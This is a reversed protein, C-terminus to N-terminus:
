SPRAGPPCSRPWCASRGIAVILVSSSATLAGRVGHGPRGPGPSFSWGFLVGVVIGLVGGIIATIVSEYRIVRRLQRRTMGVARLMGIERTREFVSLALTNVIGILAIIVCMALLIYLLSLIGNVSERRRGQVRRKDAGQGGPVAQAGPDGGAPRPARPATTSSAGARDGPGQQGARVHDFTTSPIILGTM